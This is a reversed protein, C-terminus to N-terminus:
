AFVRSLNWSVHRDVANCFAKSAGRGPLPFSKGDQLGYITQREFHSWSFPTSCGLDARRVTALVHRFAERLSRTTLMLAREARSLSQTWFGSVLGKKKKKVGSCNLEPCCVNAPSLTRMPSLAVSSRTVRERQCRCCLPPFSLPRPLKRPCRGPTGLSRCGNEKGSGVPSERLDTLSASANLQSPGVSAWPLGCCETAM